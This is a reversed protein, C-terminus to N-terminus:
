RWSLAMAIGGGCVCYLFFLCPVHACVNLIKQNRRCAHTARREEAVEQAIEYLIHRVLHVVSNESEAGSDHHRRRNHPKYNGGNVGVGSKGSLEDRNGPDEDPRQEQGEYVAESRMQVPECAKVVLRVRVIPM